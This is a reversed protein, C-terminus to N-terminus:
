QPSEGFAYAVVSRAETRIQVPRVGAPEDVLREM